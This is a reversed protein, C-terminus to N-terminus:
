DVSLIFRPLFYGGLVVTPVTPFAVPHPVGGGLYGIQLGQYLGFDDLADILAPPQFSIDGFYGVAYGPLHKGQPKHLAPAPVLHGADQAPPVIGSIDLLNAISEQFFILTTGFTGIYQTVITIHFYM